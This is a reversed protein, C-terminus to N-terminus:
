LYLSPELQGMPWQRNATRPVSDRDRVTKSINRELRIPDRSQGKLTVFRSRDHPWKIGRLGNGTPPGKIQILAEVKVTEPVNLPTHLAITSM